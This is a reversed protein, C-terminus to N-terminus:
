IGDVLKRIQLRAQEPSPNEAIINRAEEVIGIAREAPIQGNKCIFIRACGTKFASQESVDLEEFLKEGPRIGTIRIPIDVYPRYGQQIIMEEALDLIKVPEGMDLVFVEGGEAFAAAQLVLSVAEHASMFYRRMEQHTVTVPMRRAIQERFLPVVSGSSGLVNGFRVASFRTRNMRNLQLVAVEALRKTCGMISVPNVAKDTSILVFKDVGYEVSLSAMLLSASFNNRLGDVPNHEVMPVHKFAAAHLVLDPHYREFIRRMRSEDMVDALEAVCSIETEFGRIERDIEYLANESREVMIICSPAARVVQRVLESGISGGAGTVLVKRDRIFEVISEVEPLHEPRGLLDRESRRSIIYRAWAFRCLILGFAWLIANLISISFPPRIGSSSVAPMLFRLALLVSCSFAVASFYRPILSIKIQRWSIRHCGFMWLALSQVIWVTIFSRAAGTWGWLPENFDFRLIFAGLYAAAMVVSDAAFELFRAAAFKLYANRKRIELM